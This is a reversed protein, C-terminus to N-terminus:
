SGDEMAKTPVAWMDGRWNYVAYEFDGNWITHRYDGFTRALFLAACIRLTSRLKRLSHM